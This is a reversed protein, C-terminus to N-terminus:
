YKIERVDKIRLVLSSGEVRLELYRELIPGAFEQHQGDFPDFAVKWGNPDVQVAKSQGWVLPIIDQSWAEENRTHEIDYEFQFNVKGSTGIRHHITTVRYAVTPNSRELMKSWQDNEDGQSWEVVFRVSADVIRWRAPPLPGEYYVDKLVDNSSHQQWSQTVVHQTEHIPNMHKKFLTVQGPSPPLIGLLLNYDAVKQKKFFDGEEYPMSLKMKLLAFKSTPQTMSTPTVLFKLSQTTNESPTYQTDGVQLKPKLDDRQAFVFNGQMSLEFQQPTASWAQFKPIISTLQPTTKAFPLTNSIQQAQSTVNNITENTSQELDNVMTNIEQLKKTTVADLKNVSTDLSDAYAAQAEQITNYAETGAQIVVGRGAEGATRVVTEVRDAAGILALGLTASEAVGGGGCGALLGVTLLASLVLSFPLRALKIQTKTNLERSRKTSISLIHGEISMAKYGRAALM